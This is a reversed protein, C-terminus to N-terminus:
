QGQQEKLMWNFTAPDSKALGHQFPPIWEQERPGEGADRPKAQFETSEKGRWCLLRAIITELLLRM